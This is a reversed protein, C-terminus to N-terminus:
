TRSNYEATYNPMGLNDLVNKAFVLPQPAELLRILIRNAIVLPINVPPEDTMTTFLALANYQILEFIIFITETIFGQDMVGPIPLNMDTAPDRWYLFRDVVNADNESAVSTSSSVYYHIGMFPGTTYLRIRTPWFAPTNIWLNLVLSQCNATFTHVERTHGGYPNTMELWNTGPLRKHKRTDVLEFPMFNAARLSLFSIATTRQGAQLFQASTFANHNQNVTHVAGFLAGATVATNVRTAQYTKRHQEDRVVPDVIAAAAM